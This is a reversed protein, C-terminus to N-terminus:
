KKEDETQSLLPKIEVVPRYKVYYEEETMNLIVWIPVANTNPSFLSSHDFGHKTNNNKDFRNYM